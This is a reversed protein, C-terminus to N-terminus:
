VAKMQVYLTIIIGILAMAITSEFEATPATVWRLYQPFAFRVIDGFLGFLNSFLIIFFLSV